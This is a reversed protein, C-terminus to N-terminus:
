CLGSIELQNVSQSYPPASHKFLWCNGSCDLFKGCNISRLRKIGHECFVVV